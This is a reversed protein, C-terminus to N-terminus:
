GSTTLQRRREYDVKMGESSSLTSSRLKFRNFSSLNLEQSSQKRQELSDDPVKEVEHLDNFFYCSHSSVNIQGKYREKSVFFNDITNPIGSSYMTTVYGRDDKTLATALGAPGIACKLKERPHNCDGGAIALVDYDTDESHMSLIDSIEQSLLLEDRAYDLHMNTLAVMRNTPIHECLVEFATNKSNRSDKIFFNCHWPNLTQNNYLTVLPKCNDNPLTKELSWGRENLASFFNEVIQNQRTEFEQSLSKTFIDVEQLFIFDIPENNEIAKDILSLYQNLQAEKRALYSDENEMVGFPNNSFSQGPIPCHAGDHCKDLMNHTLGYLKISSYIDEVKIGQIAHDSGFLGLAKLHKDTM